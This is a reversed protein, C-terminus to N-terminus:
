TAKKKSQRWLRAYIKPRIEACLDCDCTEKGTIRAYCEHGYYTNIETQTLGM